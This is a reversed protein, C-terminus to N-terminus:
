FKQKTELDHPNRRLCKWFEAHAAMTLRIDREADEDIEDLGIMQEICDDDRNLLAETVSLVCEQLISRHYGGELACVVKGNTIRMLSRTLNGFCEASVHCEGIDGDAADFGASILVLDPQFERAVPMVIANWAAYYEDDGMGKRSWGVNVNYGTGQDLGVATPGGNRHFPYYNGGDYRHVSMYMVTPDHLFATQTGNGHHVDWDVILVKGVGLVDRAYAAAVAVNNIICYGGAMGPEAHHGPPRIIAFGNDLEGSFVQTVLQCLSAAAKKAQHVSDPTLFISDFQQAEDDLRRLCTCQSLRELRQMYGPIHVRLYDHSKLFALEPSRTSLESHPQFIACRNQIGAQILRDYISVIRLPREPHFRNHRDQHLHSAEFILGTKYKGVRDSEQLYSKPNNPDFDNPSVSDNEISIISAHATDNTAISCQRVVNKPVTKAEKWSQQQKSTTVTDDDDDDLNSEPIFHNEPANSELRRKM